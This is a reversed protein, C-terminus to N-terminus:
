VLARDVLMEKIVDDMEKEQFLVILVDLGDVSKILNPSDFQMSIGDYKGM